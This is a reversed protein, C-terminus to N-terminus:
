FLAAEVLAALYQNGFRNLHIGDHTIPERAAAQELANQTPVYKVNDCPFELVTQRIMERVSCLVPIWHVLYQATPFLLPEILLIQSTNNELLGAILTQAAKKSHSLLEDSQEQSLGTNMVIGAENVGCTIVVREYTRAAYMRQWKQLVRPFTFGNTGGNVATIEPHRSAILKVYGGGLNDPTFNHACDTISDGLFLINM